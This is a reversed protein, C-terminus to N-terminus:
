PRACLEEIVKGDRFMPASRGSPMILDRAPDVGLARFLTASLDAPSCPPTPSDGYADTKGHVHGRPISGGALFVAMSRSWHDRGSQGNVRPTRGFEGACYVITSDLLGRSELDEVLTGLARDLV